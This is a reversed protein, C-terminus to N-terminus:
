GSSIPVNQVIEVLALKDWSTFNECDPYRDCGYSFATESLKENLLMAKKASRASYASKMVIAQTHRCDSIAAPTLSALDVWNSSWRVAVFRATLVLQICGQNSNEMELSLKPQKGGEFPRYFEDAAAEAM